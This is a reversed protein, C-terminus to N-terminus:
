VGFSPARVFSISLTHTNHIRTESQVLQWHVNLDFFSKTTSCKVVQICQVNKFFEQTSFVALDGFMHVSARMVCM